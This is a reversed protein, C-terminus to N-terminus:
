SVLAQELVLASIFAVFIMLSCPMNDCSIGKFRAFLVFTIPVVFFLSVVILSVNLEM